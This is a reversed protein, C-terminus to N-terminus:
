RAPTPTSALPCPIEGDSRKPPARKERVQAKSGLWLLAIVTGGGKVEYTKSKIQNNRKKYYNFSKKM